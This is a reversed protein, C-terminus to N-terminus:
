DLYNSTLEKLDQSTLRKEPRPRLMHQILEDLVLDDSTPFTLVEKGKYVQSLFDSLKERSEFEDFPHYGYLITFYILGLAWVDAQEMTSSNYPKLRRKTTSRYYIEPSIYLPTGRGKTNCVGDDKWCSLGFDTYQIDMTSPNILINGPKIDKHIIGERHLQHLGEALQVVVKTRKTEDSITQHINLYDKLSVFDGNHETIIYVYSDDEISEVFFPFYSRCNSNDDCYKETLKILISIERDVDDRVFNTKNNNSSTKSIQKMIFPKGTSTDQVLSVSSYCGKGLTKIKSYRFGEKINSARKVLYADFHTLNALQTATITRDLSWIKHVKDWSFASPNSRFYTYIKILNNRIGTQYNNIIFKLYKNQAPEYLEQRKYVGSEDVVIKWLTRGDIDELLNISYLEPTQNELAIFVSLTSKKRSM